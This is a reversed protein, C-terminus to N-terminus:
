ARPRRAAAAGREEAQKLRAAITEPGAEKVTGVQLTRVSEVGAFKLM